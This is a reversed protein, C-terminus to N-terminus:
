IVKALLSRFETLFEEVKTESLEVTADIDPVTEPPISDM